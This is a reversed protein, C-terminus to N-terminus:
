QSLYLSFIDKRHRMNKRSDCTLTFLYDYEYEEPELISGIIWSALQIGKLDTRESSFAVSLFVSGHQPKLPCWLSKVEHSEM